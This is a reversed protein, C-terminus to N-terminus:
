VYSLTDFGQLIAFTRSVSSNFPSGKLDICSTSIWGIQEPTNKDSWVGPAGHGGEGRGGLLNAQLM